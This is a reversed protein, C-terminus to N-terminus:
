AIGAQEYALIMELAEPDDRYMDFLEYSRTSGSFPLKHTPGPSGILQNMMYGQGFGEAGAALPALTAALREKNTTSQQQIRGELEARQRAEKEQDAAYVAMEAQKNSENIIRAQQGLRSQREAEVQGSTVDQTIGQRPSLTQLDQIAKRAPDRISQGMMRKEESTLGLQGSDALAQLRKIQEKNYRNAKSGLMSPLAGIGAGVAATGAAVLPIIFPVPM